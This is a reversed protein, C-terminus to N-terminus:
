HEDLLAMLAARRDEYATIMRRYGELYADANAIGKLLADRDPSYMTCDSDGVDFLEGMRYLNRIKCGYLKRGGDVDVRLYHECATCRNEGIVDLAAMTEMEKEYIREAAFQAADLGIARYIAEKTAGCAKCYCDVSGDGNEKVWIASSKRGCIVCRAVFFNMELGTKKGSLTQWLARYDPCHKREKDAYARACM